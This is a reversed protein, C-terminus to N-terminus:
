RSYFEVILSIPTLDGLDEGVPKALIKAELKEKDLALWSPTEYNKLVAQINEFLRSKKAKEKLGVAQGPKVGVSAINLSKGDVLINKHSVMQRAMSRSKALGARFVVNDLRTELFQMLNQRTDGSQALARSFYKEFQKERLGYIMKLKQKEALQLSFESARGKRRKGHIGPGYPRKAIACKQSYCRDGKLFLKEGAARCNRCKPDIM